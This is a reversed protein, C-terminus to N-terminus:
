SNRKDQIVYQSEHNDYAKVYHEIFAYINPYVSPAHEKLFYRCETIRFKPLTKRQKM